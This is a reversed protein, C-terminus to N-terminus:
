SLTLFGALREILFMGYLCSFKLSVLLNNTKAGDKPLISTQAELWRVAGGHAAAAVVVTALGDAIIMQLGKIRSILGVEPATM